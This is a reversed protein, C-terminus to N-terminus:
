ISNEGYKAPHIYIFFTKKVIEHEHSIVKKRFVKRFSVEIVILIQIFTVKGKRIVAM